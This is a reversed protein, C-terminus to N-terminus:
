CSGCTLSVLMPKVAKWARGAEQLLVTAALLNSEIIEIKRASGQLIKWNFAFKREAQMKCALGNATGSGGIATM